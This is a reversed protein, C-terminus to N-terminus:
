SGRRGEGPPPAKTTEAGTDLPPPSALLRDFEALQEEAQAIAQDTVDDAGDHMRFSGAKMLDVQRQLSERQRLYLLVIGLMDPAGRRGAEWDEVTRKKAAVKAAFEAQSWGRKTRFARIETPTVAFSM